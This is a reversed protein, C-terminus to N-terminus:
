FATSKSIIFQRVMTTFGCAAAIQLATVEGDDAIDPSLSIHSLIYLVIGANIMWKLQQSYDMVYHPSVPCKCSTWLIEFSFEFYLDGFSILSIEFILYFIHRFSVSIIVLSLLSFYYFYFYCHYYHYYYCHYICYLSLLARLSLTFRHYLLRRTLNIHHLAM